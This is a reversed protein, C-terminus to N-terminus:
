QINQVQEKLREVETKLEVVIQCIRADSAKSGVTNVERNIEQLLFDLRRSIPENLHLFDSYQKLHSDLRTLEEAIDLKGYIAAEMDAKQQTSVAQKNAGAEAKRRMRRAFLGAARASRKRIKGILNHVKTLRRRHDALIHRGEKLQMKLVHDVAKTLLEEIQGWLEGYSGEEEEVHLLRDIGIIQLFDNNGSLKLEKRLRTIVNLYKHALKTDVSITTGGFLSGKEKFFVEVKGRPFNSRLYSRIKSELITMKPPIKINFDTFRHNVGRVEVYLRGKGVKGEANGFGTMSQM